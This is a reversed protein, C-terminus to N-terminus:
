EPLDYRKDDGYFRNGFFHLWMANVRKSLVGELERRKDAHPGVLDNMMQLFGSMGGYEIRAIRLVDIQMSLQRVQPDLKTYCAFASRKAREVVGQAKVQEIIENVAANRM